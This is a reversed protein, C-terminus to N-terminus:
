SQIWDLTHMYRSIIETYICPACLSSIYHRTITAFLIIASAKYELLLGATAVLIEKPKIYNIEPPDHVRLQRNIALFMVEVDIM